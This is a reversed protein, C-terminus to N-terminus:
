RLADLTIDGLKAGIQAAAAGNVKMDSTCGEASSNNYAYGLVSGAISGGNIEGGTQCNTVRIAGPEPRYQRYEQVFFGGGVIGGIREATAPANIVANGSCDSILTASNGAGDAIGAYGLLGGILVNNEGVTITVDFKCRLVRESEMACAVLGGIGINGTGLATVTGTASCDAIDSTEMGGALVGGGQANDGSLTVNAQAECGIIDCFGGGVIGGVLFAGKISNNGILKVNEVSSGRGYGIVGAVLMQGQVNANTVTLNSVSGTGAVCGFLGVAVGEPANITINSITHGGGDFVGSFTQEMVPTEEDEQADSIPVFAGMPTWNEFSALDIDSTLAFHGDLHNRVEGLQAATSIQWPDASTGSGGAFKSTDDDSSGGCGGSMFVFAMLLLLVWLTLSRKKM